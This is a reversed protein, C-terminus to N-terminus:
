DLGGGTAYPDSARGPNDDSGSDDGSSPGAPGLEAPGLESQRQPTRRYGAEALMQAPDPWYAVRIPVAPQVRGGVTARLIAHFREITAVDSEDYSVGSMSLNAAAERAVAQSQQAFWFVTGFGLLCARVDADLQTPRQTAVFMRVGYSRGRERLWTVVEPSAGALASLEDAFISVSRNAEQWGACTREIELRLLYTLMATLTETLTEDVLTVPKGPRPASAGTCVVVAWHEELATRWEFRSRNPAWWSGAKTLLQVKNRAAETLNRRQSPTTQAFFPRLGRAAAALPGDPPSVSAQYAIATALRVAEEDGWGGLLVHTATMPDPSGALEAASWAAPLDSALAAALTASLAEYSRGQIAGDAFAYTMAAVFADAREQPTSGFCLMDIAPSSPDSLEVLMRSDGAAALGAEWAALGDAKTEYCVLTNRRGPGPHRSTLAREASSYAWLANLLATKGSGPIGVAAVGTWLDEASLHVAQPPDGAYGVVPGVDALLAAPASRMRTASVEAVEPSHPSVVGVPMGPGVLFASTALPWSGPRARVRKGDSAVSAERPSSPPLLRQPPPPFRGTGVARRLSRQRSPLRGTGVGAAVTVGAAALLAGEPVLHAPIALSGGVVVGAIGPYVASSWPSVVEVETEVDFGPISAAVLRLLDGLAGADGGGAYFRAVLNDAESSYHTTGQGLRHDYWRRARASEQRSPARLSVAVWQGVVLVRGLASAVEAPDAGHQSARSAHQRPRAVLVAIPGDTELDPTSTDEVPELRGGVTAALAAAAREGPTTAPAIVFGALGSRDRVALLTVEGAIAVAAGFSRARGPLTELPPPAAGQRAVRWTATKPTQAM